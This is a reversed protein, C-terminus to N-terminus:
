TIGRALKWRRLAEAMVLGLLGADTVVISYPVGLYDACQELEDRPPTGVNRLTVAWHKTRGSMQQHQPAGVSEYLVGDAIVHSNIDGPWDRTFMRRLDLMQIGDTFTEESTSWERVPQVACKVLTPAAAVVWTKLGRLPSTENVRPIVLVPHKGRDLLSM